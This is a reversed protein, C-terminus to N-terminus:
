DEVTLTEAVRELALRLAAPESRAYCPGGGDSLLESLAAVAQARVPVSSRLIAAVDLIEPIAERVQERCPQVVAGRFPGGPRESHQVASWGAM